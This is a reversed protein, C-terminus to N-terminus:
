VIRLEASPPHDAGRGPQKVGPFVWSRNYLLGSPVRPRNPFDRGGGPNWGRVTWCTPNCLAPTETDRHSLLWSVYLSNTAIVSIWVHYPIRARWGWPPRWLNGLHNICTHRSCFIERVRKNTRIEREREWVSEIGYKEKTGEQQQLNKRM